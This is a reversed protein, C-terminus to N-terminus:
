PAARLSLRKLDTLMKRYDERRGLGELDKDRELAAADRFGHRVAEALAQVAEAACSEALDKRDAGAAAAVRALSRAASVLPGPLGPWLARHARAAAAAEDLHGAQVELGALMRYTTTLLERNGQSDSVLDVAARGHPVAERVAALADGPRSPKLALSLNNLTMVLSRQYDVQDPEAATLQRYIDRAKELAAIAEANRGARSHATSSDFWGRALSRRYLTLDPDLRCLKESIEIAEGYYKLAQDTHNRERYIHGMQRLATALQDQYHLVSPNDRTLRRLLTLAQKLTALGQDWEKDGCHHSALRIFVNALTEMVAPDNKGQPWEELLERARQLCKRGQEREGLSNLVNGLNDLASALNVRFAREGPRQAFLAEKLAVGEEHCARAERLRGATYHITATNGCVMALELRAAQGVRPDDRLAELLPRARAYSELAAQQRGTYGLAIAIRDHTRALALRLDRDDPREDSLEQYLKLAEGHAALAETRSGIASVLNGIRAHTAAVDARLRPDGARQSLIERYHRLAAELLTKRVPEMGPRSALDKESLRNGVEELLDEVHALNGEARTREGEARARETEARIWEAAARGRETEATQYHDEARRWLGLVLGFATLFVVLLGGLLGAVLPQRRCWRGFRAARGVPRVLVPQGALCRELDAALERASAYRRQPDRHLCVRCVADLDRSVRPNLARPPTPEQEQAKRLLERVDAGQFPPRGTLLEYLIAGLGYIDTATTPPQGLAQEPSMYAPTGVIVGAGTLTSSSLSGATALGSEAAPEASGLRKALGFDTIMPFFHFASSRPNPPNERILSPDEESGRLDTSDANMRTRNELLINAPKLDRHLIGRQHAHHVAGAVQSVLRAAARPDAQFPQKHAALSGGEVFKMSFYPLGEHEGVEYIPVIHPHDLHAVAEAEVRFRRWEAQSATPGARLVKLAVVRNLSKQRAKFVVGMGGHAIEDLVEYDGLTCGIGLPPRAPVIQRLPAALREVHDQDAFFRELEDALAPHQEVLAQRSPAQGVQVARLYGALVEDLLHEREEPITTTLAMSTM